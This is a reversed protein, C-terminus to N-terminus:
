DRNTRRDREGKGDRSAVVLYEGGHAGQARVMLGAAEAFSLLIARERREISQNKTMSTTAGTLVVLDAPVTMLARYADRDQRQLVPVLKFGFAVDFHSRGSRSALAPWGENIDFPTVILRGDGRARAYSSLIDIAEPDKDAATYATVSAGEADFPFLAPYIGSGVDLISSPTGIHKFLAEHFEALGALREQTSVHGRALAALVEPGPVEGPRAARLAALAAQATQDGARDYRRLLYYIKRRSASALDKFLRTRQIQQASRGEAIAAGLAPEDALVDLVVSRAQDEGIRYRRCAQAVLQEALQRGADTDLWAASPRDTM